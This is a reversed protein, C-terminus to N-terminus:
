LKKIYEILKEINKDGKSGFIGKNQQLFKIRKEKYVNKPEFSYEKELQKEIKLFESYPAKFKANDADWFIRKLNNVPRKRHKTAEILGTVLEVMVPDGGIYSQKFYEISRDENDNRKPDHIVDHFFAALLLAQKERVSLYNFNPNKQINEIISILHNVNHYYRTRESWRIPLEKLAKESIHTKLSNEFIKFPNMM